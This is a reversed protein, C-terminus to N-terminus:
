LVELIKDTKKFFLKDVIDDPNINLPAHKVFPDVGFLDLYYCLGDKGILGAPTYDVMNGVLINEFIVKGINEFFHGESLEIHRKDVRCYDFPQKPIAVTTLRTSSFKHYYEHMKIPLIGDNAPNGMLICENCDVNNEISPPTNRFKQIDLSDLLILKDCGINIKFPNGMCGAQGQSLMALMECTIIIIDSEYDVDRTLGSLIRGDGFFKHLKYYRMISIPDLDIITKFEIDMHDRLNFFLDVVTTYSGSIYIGDNYSLILTKM